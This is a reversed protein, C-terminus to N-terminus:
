SADGFHGALWACVLDNEGPKLPYSTGAHLLHNRFVEPRLGASVITQTAIEDITSFSILLSGHMYASLSLCCRDRRLVLPLRNRGDQLAKEPTLQNRDGGAKAV